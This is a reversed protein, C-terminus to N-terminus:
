IDDGVWQMQIQAFDPLYHLVPFDSTRYEM